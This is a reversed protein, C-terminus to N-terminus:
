RELGLNKIEEIQKFVKDFDKVSMSNIEADTLNTMSKVLYDNADSMKAASINFKPKGNEDISQETWDLLLKMYEKDVGRTYVENFVVEKEEWNIIVKLSKM